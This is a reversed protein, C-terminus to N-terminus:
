HPWSGRAIGDFSQASEADADEYWEANQELAASMATFQEGAEQFLGALKEFERQYAGHLDQSTAGSVPGDVLIMFASRGLTQLRALAAVRSMQEALDHWNASAERLGDTAVRINKASYYDYEPM